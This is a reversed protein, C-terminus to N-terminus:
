STTLATGSSVAQIRGVGHCGRVDNWMDEEKRESSGVRANFDGVIMLVDEEAVGDIVSQLDAYLENKEEQSARNTPAYVSVITGHVPERRGRQVDKEGLKLRASVIRSSIAQWEGGSSKWNEAMAPDLVIAVGENRLAKDGDAPVHRGSHLIVYGDVKYVASGFWKTESIGVVNMRYKKLEMVMLLAKKDVAVGRSSKKTVATEISGDSEM